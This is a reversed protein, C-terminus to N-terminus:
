RAAPEEEALAGRGDVPEAAALEGAQPGAAHAEDRDVVRGRDDRRRRQAPPEASGTFRVLEERGSGGSVTVTLVPGVGRAYFKHELLHPELPTFDKTMLVGSWHGYPVEAQEDTSLVRAADEAEGRLYEQRYSMGPRPKAPLLVGAQAGDRGAEWSGETNVKRGSEYEATDEGLYWVNGDRDQAYYDLTDEVISGDETVVDHVVRAVVGAAVRHTRDTVTVVVRQTSSGERERYIWRSGPRMPWYPHDIRTTFDSPDLDVPEGGQPLSPADDSGCSAVLIGIAAAALAAKVRPGM